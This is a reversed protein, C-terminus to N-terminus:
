RVKMILNHTDLLHPIAQPLWGQLDQHHITVMTAVIELLFDIRMHALRLTLTLYKNTKWTGLM